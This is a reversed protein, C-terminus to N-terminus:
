LFLLRERTYQYFRTVRGVDFVWIKPVRVFGMLLLVAAMIVMLIISNRKNARILEWM